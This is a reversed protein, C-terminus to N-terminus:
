FVDILWLELFVIDDCNYKWYVFGVDENFLYQFSYAGIKKSKAIGDIKLVTILEDKYQCQTYGNHRIKYRLFLSCNCIPDNFSLYWQSRKKKIKVPISIEPFPFYQALGDYCSRPAIEKSRPPYYQARPPHIWIYNGKDLVQTMENAGRVRIYEKSRIRTTDIESKFISFLSDMANRSSVTDYYNYTIINGGFQKEEFIRMVVYNIKKIGSSDYDAKFVFTKLPKYILPDKSKNQKNTQAYLSMCGLLLLFIM